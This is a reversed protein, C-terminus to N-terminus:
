KKEDEQRFAAELSDRAAEVASATQHSYHEVMRSTKHGSLASVVFDPLGAERARTVFSHRMSHFSLNRTDRATKGIEIADM